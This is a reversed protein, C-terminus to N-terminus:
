DESEDEEPAPPIHLGSLLDEIKQANEQTDDLYFNLDPVVRVQKGIKLGLAKRIESKKSKILELFAPEDDVMMLSLFIKAFSLDPSVEVDTITIFAKGFWHRTDRQFLESLDKKILGAYKLQRTSSM